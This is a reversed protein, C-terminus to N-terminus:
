SDVLIIEHGEQKLIKIRQESHNELYENNKFYFDYYKLQEKDKAVRLGRGMRQVINHHSKGGAANILNHIFVNIGATIIHQMVIAISNDGFKLSEIMLSRTDLDDKGQIWHAQPLLTKLIEGQKIREVLILTRGTLSDALKVVIDHFYNNEAIGQTVADQYIAYSLDPKDITHIFCQSKSLTKRKQLLDTTILGSETITTKFIPGFYGKVKFKQEQDKGGEKFPTASVAVRVCAAKCKRFAKEPVSSMCQHIEDVIIVKFHPLMKDISTMTYKNTNCCMIYNLEKHKDYWRGVNEVKCNILEEYNQKVLSSYRTLLLTPTKPPLCHLIAVMLLSKGAGTPAQVIGRSHKLVQNVLEVQYDHLEIKHDLFQNLFQNDISPYKWQFSEREDIIKYEIKLGDLISVVEPLLGTLFKGTKPQFFHSFGDWLKKKYRWNHWYDKARVKLIEDLTKKLSEDPTELQSIDNKINLLHM